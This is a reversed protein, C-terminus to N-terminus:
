HIIDWNSIYAIPDAFNPTKQKKSIKRDCLNLFAGSVSSVPFM